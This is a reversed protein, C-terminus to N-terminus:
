CVLYIKLKRSFKNKLNYVLITFNKVIKAYILSYKVIFNFICRTVQEM